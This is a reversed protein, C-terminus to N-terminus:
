VPPPRLRAVLLATATGLGWLTLGAAFLMLGRGAATRAVGPVLRNPSFRLREMRVGIRPAAGGALTRLHQAVPLAPDVHGEDDLTLYRSLQWAAASSWLLRTGSEDWLLLPAGSHLLEAFAPDAALLELAKGYQESLDAM